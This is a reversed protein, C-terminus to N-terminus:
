LSKEDSEYMGVKAKEGVRRYAWFMGPTNFSIGIKGNKDIAVLGGLANQSKLKDNIIYEAAQTANMGQYEFLASMDYAVSNKIFYEGHGTCSVGCTHNNAYTGAGIIPSDGIRGFKKNDMGGTSTGAAINGNKDIAVCGVTGMKDMRQLREERKARTKPTIFYEIEIPEVKMSVAFEEAGAGSLLVHKTSDKVLRALSIPNQVTSVGAVAGAMLNSGDMISADLEVNGEANLVAGKGSNFLPHNELFNITKEVAMLATAGSDLLGYGIVIASDLANKYKEELGDKLREKTITGAGGHLVIIPYSVESKEEIEPTIVEKEIVQNEDGWKIEQKCSLVLIFLIIFGILSKKSM